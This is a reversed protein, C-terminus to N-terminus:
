RYRDVHHHTQNYFPSMRLRWVICPWPLSLDCFYHELHQFRHELHHCPNSLSLSAQCSGHELHRWRFLKGPAAMGFPPLTQQADNLHGKAGFIRSGFLTRGEVEIGPHLSSCAISMCALRYSLQWPPPSSSTPFVYACLSWYVWMCAHICAHMCRSIPFMRNCSYFLTGFRRNLYSCTCICM